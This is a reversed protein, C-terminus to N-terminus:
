VVRNKTVFTHDSAVMNEFPYSELFLHSQVLEVLLLFGEHNFATAKSLASPITTPCTGLEKRNPERAQAMAIVANQKTNQNIM